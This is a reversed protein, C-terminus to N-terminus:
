AAIRGKLPIECRQLFGEIGELTRASFVPIGAGRLAIHAEVQDDSVRGEKAKLELAFARRDWLIILDPAGPLAGLAAAKRRWAADPGGNPIHIVVAEKPLVRALYTLVAKQFDSEETKREPPKGFLDRAPQGLRAYGRRM